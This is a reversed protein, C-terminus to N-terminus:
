IKYFSFGFATHKIAETTYLAEPNNDCSRTKEPNTEFDTYIVFPLKILKHGYSYKLLKNGKNPM